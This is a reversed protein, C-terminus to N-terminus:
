QIAPHEWYENVVSSINDSNINEWNVDSAKEKDISLKLVPENEVNGSADVLPFQWILTVEQIEKLSFLEKLLRGSDAQIAKRTLKTTLNENANLTAIIIKDEKNETGLHDNVQLEEISEKKYNTEEGIIDTIMIKIQEQSANNASQKMTEEKSNEETNSVVQKEDKSLVIFLTSLVIGCCLIALCLILCGQFPSLESSSKKTGM